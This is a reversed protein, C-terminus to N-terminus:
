VYCQKCTVTKCGTYPFFGILDKGRDTQIQRETMREGRELKMEIVGVDDVSEDVVGEIRQYEVEESGKRMM